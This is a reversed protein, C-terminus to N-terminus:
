LGVEKGSTRSTGVRSSRGETSVHVTLKTGEPYTPLTAKKLLPVITDADAKRLVRLVGVLRVKKINEDYLYQQGVFVGQANKLALEKAAKALQQSAVTINETKFRLTLTDAEEIIDYPEVGLWKATATKLMEVSIM